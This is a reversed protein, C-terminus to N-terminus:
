IHLSFLGNITINFELHDQNIHNLGLIMLQTSEEAMFCLLLEKPISSKYLNKVIKVNMPNFMSSLSIIEASTNTCNICQTAMASTPITSGNGLSKFGTATMLSCELRDIIM